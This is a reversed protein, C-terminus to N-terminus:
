IKLQSYFELAEETEKKFHESFYEPEKVIICRGFSKITKEYAWVNDTKISYRIYDEFEETQFDYGKLQKNFKKIVNGENYVHLILNETRIKFLYENLNFNREKKKDTISINLIDSLDLEDEEGDETMYVCRYEDSFYTYYLGLPIILESKTKQASMKYTITASKQMLVANIWLIKLERKRGALLENETKDVIFHKEILVNSIEKWNNKSDALLRKIFTQNNIDIDKSDLKEM